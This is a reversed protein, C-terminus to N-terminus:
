CIVTIGVVTCSVYKNEVYRVTDDAGLEIREACVVERKKQKLEEM